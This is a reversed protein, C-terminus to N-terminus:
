LRYSISMRRKGVVRQSPLMAAPVVPMAVPVRAASPLSPSQASPIVLIPSREPAPMPVMIPSPDTAPGSASSSGLVLTPPLRSARNSASTPFGLSFPGSPISICPHQLCSQSSEGSRNLCQTCQDYIACTPLKCKKRIGRIPRLCDTCFARHTIETASRLRQNLKDASVVHDFLEVAESWRQNKAYAEALINQYLIDAPYKRAMTIALELNGEKTM